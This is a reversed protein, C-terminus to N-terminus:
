SSQSHLNAVEGFYIPIKGLGSSDESCITIGKLTETLLSYEEKPAFVIMELALVKPSLKIVLSTILNEILSDIKQLAVRTGELPKLGFVQALQILTKGM